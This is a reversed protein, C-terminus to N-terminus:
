KCAVCNRLKIVSNFILFLILTTLKSGTLHLWLIIRLVFYKADIEAWCISKVNQKGAVYVFTISRWIRAEYTHLIAFNNYKKPIEAIFMKFWLMM